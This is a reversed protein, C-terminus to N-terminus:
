PQGSEQVQTARAGDLNAPNDRGEGDHNNNGRRYKSRFMLVGSVLLALWALTLGDLLLTGTNGIFKGSHLDTVVIDSRVGMPGDDLRYSSPLFRRSVYKDELGLQQSHQILLGTTILLLLNLSSVIGIWSHLKRLLRM